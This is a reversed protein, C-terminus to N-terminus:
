EKSGCTEQTCSDGPATCIGCSANCCVTGAKCTVEGCKEEGSPGCHWTCAHAECTFYGLCQPHPLGTCDAPVDCYGPSSADPSSGDPSSGDLSSGDLSSGDLSSGDLSSADLGPSSGDLSPDGPDADGADERPAEAAPAVETLEPEASPFDLSCGVAIGFAGIGLVVYVARM